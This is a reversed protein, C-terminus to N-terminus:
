MSNYNTAQEAILKGYQGGVEEFYIYGLTEELVQWEHSGFSLNRLLPLLSFLKRRTNEIWTTSLFGVVLQKMSSATKIQISHFYM